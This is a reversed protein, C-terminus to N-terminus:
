SSLEMLPERSSASATECIKNLKKTTLKSFKQFEVVTFSVIETLIETLIIQRQILAFASM